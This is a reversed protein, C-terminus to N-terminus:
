LYKKENIIKDLDFLNKILVKVKLDKFPNDDNVRGIFAIETKVAGEYDDISDGIAITEKTSLKYKQLIARNLVDKKRPAGFIEVFYKKLGREEIISLLEGHPTGSVIFLSLSQYYKNLFEVAGDVFPCELVAQYVYESFQKGLEAKHSSSLSQHLLDNYIWEFKEFRSLGGHKLHFAVIKDVHEPWAKFLHAFARAKIDMSEIIVGDFDFIIAKLKM